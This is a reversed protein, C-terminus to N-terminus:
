VSKEEMEDNHRSKNWIKKYYELEETLVIEEEDLLELCKKLDNLDTERRIELRKYFDIHDYSQQDLYLLGKKIEGIIMSDLCDTNGEDIASSKLLAKINDICENRLFDLQSTETKKYDVSRYGEFLSRRRFDYVVVKQDSVQSTFSNIKKRFMKTM